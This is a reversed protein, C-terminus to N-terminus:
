MEAPTVGPMTSSRRAIWLGRWNMPLQVSGKAMLRMSPDLYACLADIVTTPIATTRTLAQFDDALQQMEDRAANAHRAMVLEAWGINMARQLVAVLIPEPVWDFARLKFPTIPIDRARM